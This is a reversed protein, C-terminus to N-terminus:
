AQIQKQFLNILWVRYRIKWVFNILDFRFVFVCVSWVKFEKSERICVQCKYLEGLKPKGLLAIEDADAATQAERNDNNNTNLDKNQFTFFFNNNNKM